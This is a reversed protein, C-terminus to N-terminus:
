SPVADNMDWSRMMQKQVAETPRAHDKETRRLIDLCAEQDRPSQFQDGVIVNPQYTLM